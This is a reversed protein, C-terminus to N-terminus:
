NWLPPIRWYLQGHSATRDKGCRQVVLKQEAKRKCNVRRLSEGIVTSVIITSAIVKSAIVASILRKCENLISGAGLLGRTATSEVGLRLRRNERPSPADRMALRDDLIREDVWPQPILSLVKRV